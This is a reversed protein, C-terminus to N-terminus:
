VNEEFLFVVSNIHIIGCLVVNDAAVFIFKATCSFCAFGKAAVYVTVAMSLKRTADQSQQSVDPYCFM